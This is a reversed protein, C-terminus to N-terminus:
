GTENGFILGHWLVRKYIAPNNTGYEYQYLEFQGQDRRDAGIPYLLVGPGNFFIQPTSRPYVNLAKKIAYYADRWEDPYNVDLGYGAGGELPDKNPSGEVLLMRLPFDPRTLVNNIADVVVSYDGYNRGAMLVCLQVKDEMELTDNTRGILYGKCYRTLFLPLAAVKVNLRIGPLKPLPIDDGLAAAVEGFKANTGIVTSDILTNNRHRASQPLDDMLKSFADLKTGNLFQTERIAKPLDGVDEILYPHCTVNHKQAEEIEHLVWSSQRSQDSVFILIADSKKLNDQLMKYWEDGQKLGAADIWMRFHRGLRKVLPLVKDSDAHAYSVFIQSM